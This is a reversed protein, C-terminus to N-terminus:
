NLLYEVTSVVRVTKTIQSEESIGPAQDRPLIEFTGQSAHRIGGIRSHSDRAFQVAAERARATAQAIMPPKVSNLKTFVYTPGGTGYENGSTLVVGAAVLEGIRESAARVKLPETSRVLLTQSIVYRNGVGQDSRFRDARADTVSFSQVQATRPDIGNRQLFTRVLSVTTELREHARALDDDAIVMRLPWVSLDAQVEREAIGKVTVYRDAKRFNTVGNGIFWGGVILGVMTLLAAGLAGRSVPGNGQM